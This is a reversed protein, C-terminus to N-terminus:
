SLGFWPVHLSYMDYAQFPQLIDAYFDGLGYAYVAVWLHLYEYDIFFTRLGRVGTPRVEGLAARFLWALFVPHEAHGAVALLKALLDPRALAVRRDGRLIQPRWERAPGAPDLGEAQLFAVRSEESRFRRRLRAFLGASVSWALAQLVEAKFVNGFCAP